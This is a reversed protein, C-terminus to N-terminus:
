TLIHLFLIKREIQCPQEIYFSALFTSCELGRLYLNSIRTTLQTISLGLRWMPSSKLSFAKFAIPAELQFLLYQDQYRGYIKKLRSIWEIKQGHTCWLTCQCKM